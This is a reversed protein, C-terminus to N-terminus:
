GSPPRARMWADVAQEAEQLTVNNEEGYIRVAESKRQPDLALDRVRASVDPFRPKRPANREAVDQVGLLVLMFLFSAAALGVGLYVLAMLDGLAVGLFFLAMGLVLGGVMPGTWRSVWKLRARAAPDVPEPRPPPTSFEEALELSASGLVLAAVGLLSAVIGAHLVVKWGFCGLVCLVTALLMLLAGGVLLGMKWKGERRVL